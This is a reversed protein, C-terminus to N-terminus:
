LMYRYFGENPLSSKKGTDSPNYIHKYYACIYLRVTGFAAM